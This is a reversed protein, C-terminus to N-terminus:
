QAPNKELLVAHETLYRLAKEFAKGRHSISNKEDPELEAMTRTDGIPSMVPDYGFGKLGRPEGTIVQLETYALTEFCLDRSPNWLVMGCCYSAKRSAKGEMLKLIAQNLDSNTVGAETMRDLELRNPFSQGLLEDRIQPTLWRNSYIGPFPSIGYAGDLADVILGSDEALVWGDAVVPPTAKAKLLANELFSLGTEEIDDVSENLVIEIPLRQAEVLRCLERRKGENRSALTLILKETVPIFRKAQYLDV